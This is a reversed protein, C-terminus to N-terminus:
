LSIGNKKTFADLPLAKSLRLDKMRAHRKVEAPDSIYDFGLWHGEYDYNVIFLHKEDIMWFEKPAFPKDLTLYEGREM